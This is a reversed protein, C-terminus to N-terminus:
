ISNEENQKGQLKDKELDRLRKIEKQAHSLRFVISFIYILIGIFVVGYGLILYDSTDPIQMARNAINMLVNIM